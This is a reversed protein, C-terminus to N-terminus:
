GNAVLKKKRALRAERKAKANEEMLRICDQIADHSILFKHGPQSYRLMGSRCLQRIAFVAMCMSAAAEPIDMSFKPTAVPQEQPSSLPQKRVSM